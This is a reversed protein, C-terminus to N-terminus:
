QVAHNVPPFAPSLYRCCIIVTAVIQTLHWSKKWMGRTEM